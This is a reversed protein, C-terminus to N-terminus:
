LKDELVSSDWCVLLVPVWPMLFINSLLVLLLISHLPMYRCFWGSPFSPHSFRKLGATQATTLWSQVVASCEMRYLLFVGDRLSFFFSFFLFSPMTAHAQLGLVKPPQSPLILQPWSNSVLRPLILYIKDRFFMLFFFSLSFQNSYKKPLNARKDNHLKGKQRM